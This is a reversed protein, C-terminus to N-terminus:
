EALTNGSPLSTPVDGRLDISAPDTLARLFEILDRFERKSLKVPSLENADAIAQVLTPNNMVQFDLYDLDDRSPMTAQSQDYSWLSNVPDLHHRVVAELSNYAGAHGYPATLAVNRLTPVRFRFMDAMDGTERFRGFDERSTPGDGKGPGIQPMAIAAFGHNTQFTGSHCSACNGKSKLYFARMGRKAAPSMAGREGRLFRDFPSNDARWVAGEFAAIANAAHVYTIDGPESVDDYVAAFRAVYEPSNQLRKALEAWIGPLGDAAAAIAVSNEGTQGLMETASTVPFMAQAALANELGDPLLDGAPSIFGSPQRADVALRGDHFLQTFERAGLNFVPPANRPVREHIEDAGSGTDRTVGLGKGGEGVPLSLGDGTDTLAHHCTACSINENGSLIKDFFLERGLEVKAPDPAGNDNYDSDKPADPLFGPGAVAGTSLFSLTFVALIRCVGDSRRIIRITKM